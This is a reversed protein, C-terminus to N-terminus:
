KLVEKLANILTRAQQNTGIGIRLCGNLLPYNSKDSVLIGKERLKGHVEEARKGFYAILFNATSPYTKIRMKKLEEYMVKRGKKIEGLYWKLYDLDDIAASAAKVAAINVSHSFIVKKMHNINEENSLMYGLRLGALGFEKSFTRVIVLNDYKNVLDVSTERSYQYCAEDLVVISDKAKEIIKIIDKKEIPTGTQNNPNILVILRTKKDISNLIKRTPFSFNKAYTIENIKAGIIDAYIKFM